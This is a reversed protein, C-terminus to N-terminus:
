DVRSSEEIDEEANSDEEVTYTEQVGSDQLQKIGPCKEVM